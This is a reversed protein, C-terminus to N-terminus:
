IITKKRVNLFRQRLLLLQEETYQRRKQPFRNFCFDDSLEGAIYIVQGDEIEKDTITLGSRKEVALYKRIDPTYNSYFMMKRTEVDFHIITEQESRSYVLFIM